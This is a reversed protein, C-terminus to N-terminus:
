TVHLTLTGGAMDFAALQVDETTALSVLDGDEDHYKIRLPGSTRRGCLRVKHAVATVLDDYEIARPVDLTFLDEGYHVKVLMKPQLPLVADKRAGTFVQSRSSRLATSQAGTALSSDNSGFPTIPSGTQPPSYDSSEGTSQSSASGRNREGTKSSNDWQSATPLPPPIVKPGTYQSPTSSSRVRTGNVNTRSTLSAQSDSRSFSSSLQSQQQEEDYANRLQTTSFKSRLTARTTTGLGPGFSADSGNRSSVLSPRSPLAGPPPPISGLPPPPPPPVPHGHNRWQALVAGNIDETKARPRNNELVLDREPPMSQPDRARRGGLPTGRGSNPRSQLAYEDYEDEAADINDEGYPHNVLGAVGGAYFSGVHSSPYPHQHMPVKDKYELTGYRNDPGARYPSPFRPNAATASGPYAATHMSVSVSKEHHYTVASNRVPFAPNSSNPTMRGQRESQRRSGSANVLRMIAAEWQKLQEESRCRLTFYETDDDGRWFVRLAHPDISTTKTM